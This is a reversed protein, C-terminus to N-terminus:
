GHAIAELFVAEVFGVFLEARSHLQASQFGNFDLDRALRSFQFETERTGRLLDRCGLLNERIPISFKKSPVLLCPTCEGSRKKVCGFPKV